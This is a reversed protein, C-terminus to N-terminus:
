PNCEECFIRGCECDDTSEERESSPLSRDLKSGPLRRFSQRAKSKAAGTGGNTRSAKSPPKASAGSPRETGNSSVPAPTTSEPPTASDLKSPEIPTGEKEDRM